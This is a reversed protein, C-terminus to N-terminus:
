ALKLTLTSLKESMCKRLQLPKTQRGGSQSATAKSGLDTLNKEWGGPQGLRVAPLVCSVIPPRSDGLNFAIKPESKPAPSFQILNEMPEMGLRLVAGGAGRSYASFSCARM